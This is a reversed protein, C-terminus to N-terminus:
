GWIRDDDRGDDHFLRTSDCSEKGYIIKWSTTGHGPYVYRVKVEDKM